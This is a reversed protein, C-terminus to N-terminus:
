STSGNDRRILVTDQIDRVDVPEADRAIIQQYHGHTHMTHFNEGSINIWRIRFREGTRVDLQHTAPYEKGNLTFHNEAGSRIQWSSIMEVFDHALNREIPLPHAPKVVIAGYLGSNLM